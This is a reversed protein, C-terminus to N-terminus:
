EETLIENVSNLFDEAAKEIKNRYEKSIDRYDVSVTAGSNNKLEFRGTLCINDQRKMGRVEGRDEATRKKM